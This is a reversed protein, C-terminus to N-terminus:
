LNHYCIIVGSTINQTDSIQPLIGIQRLRIQRLHQVDPLACIRLIFVAVALDGDRNQNGQGM